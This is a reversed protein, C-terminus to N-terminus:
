CVIWRMGAFKAFHQQQKKKKSFKAMESTIGAEYEVPLKIKIATNGFAM